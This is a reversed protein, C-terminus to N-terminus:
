TPFFPGMGKGQGLLGTNELSTKWAWCLGFFSASLVVPSIWGLKGPVPPKSLEPAFFELHCVTEETM